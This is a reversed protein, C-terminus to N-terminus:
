PNRTIPQANRTLNNERNRGRIWLPEGRAGERRAGERGAAIEM